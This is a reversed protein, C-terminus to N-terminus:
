KSAKLELIMDRVNAATEFDLAKAANKMEKELKMLLTDKEEKTMEEYSVQVAEKTDDESEKTISILDRIEKIITKPVIGHEENYKQQITRRRS